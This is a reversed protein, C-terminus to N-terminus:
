GLDGSEYLIAAAAVIGATEARLIRRGLTIPRIFHTRALEVEEPTFGGEPGILLHISSFLPRGSRDPAQVTPSAHQDGSVDEQEQQALVNNSVTLVFVFIMMWKTLNKM